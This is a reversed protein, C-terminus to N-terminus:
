TSSISDKLFKACDEYRQLVAEKGMVDMCPFLPPTETKATLAVRNTMFMAGLGVDLEEALDRLRDELDTDSFTDYEALVDASAKVIELAEELTDCRDLFAEEDWDLDDMFLFDAYKHVDDLTKLREQVLPIVPLVEEKTADLFGGDVLHEALTNEDLDRIYNGNVWELKEMDFVPGTTRLRDFSFEEVLRDFSYLESEDPMSFGMLSLFNVLADPLYGHERYWLISVPNERKSIKSEDENRLLPLHAFVPPEWGFADYLLIHKATSSIWEEARMVHSINMHHDDVVNALHYTPFGDSKLLVQDDLQENDFSIEGRIRDEFTTEDKEPAKLRIVFSEGDEKRQQREEDSLSRCHGDYGIQKGEKKQRERVQELREESCFCEYARDDDLLKQAHERYLDLRESQRYPGCPGGRDPGEDWDLNLWQLGDIIREEYEQKSRERDTDEIRLVFDGDHKRAFALNFVAVYATGVHPAGTPSPAIRVRVDSSQEPM